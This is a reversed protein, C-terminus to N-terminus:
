IFDYDISSKFHNYPTQVGLDIEKYQSHSSETRLRGMHSFGWRSSTHLAVTALIAADELYLFIQLFGSFGMNASSGSSVGWGRIHWQVRAKQGKAEVRLLPLLM